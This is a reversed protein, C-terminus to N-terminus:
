SSFRLELHGYVSLREGSLSFPKFTWQKAAELAADRLLAHGKKFRACEVKGELNILIDVIVVGECRCSSPLRPPIKNIAMAELQKPTLWLPTSDARGVIKPTDKCPWRKQKEEALGSALLMLIALFVSLIQQNKVWMM